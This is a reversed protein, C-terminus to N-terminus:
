MATQYLSFNTISMENIGMTARVSEVIDKSTDARKLGAIQIELERRYIKRTIQQPQKKVDNNRFLFQENDKSDM